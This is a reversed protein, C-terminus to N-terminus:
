RHFMQLDITSVTINKYQQRSFKIEILYNKEDNEFRSRVTRFHNALVDTHIFNYGVYSDSKISASIFTKICYRLIM